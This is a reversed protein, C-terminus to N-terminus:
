ADTGASIVGGPTTPLAPNTEAQKMSTGAGVNGTPPYSTADHLMDNKTQGGTGAADSGGAAFAEPQDTAGTPPLISHYDGYTDSREGTMAAFLGDMDKIAEQCAGHVAVFKDRIKQFTTRNKSSIVKGKDTIQEQDEVIEGAEKNPSAAEKKLHCYKREEKNLIISGQDKPQNKLDEVFVLVHNPKVDGVLTRGTESARKTRSWFGTSLSLKGQNIIQSCQGGDTFRLQSM